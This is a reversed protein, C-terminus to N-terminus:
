SLHSLSKVMRPKAPGQGQDKADEQAGGQRKERLDSHDAGVGTMLAFSLASGFFPGTWSIFTLRSDCAVPWLPVTPKPMEDKPVCRCCTTWFMVHDDLMHELFALTAAWSRYIASTLYLSVRLHSVACIHSMLIDPPYFNCSISHKEMTTGCARLTLEWFRSKRLIPTWIQVVSHCSLSKSALNTLVHHARAVKELQAGCFKRGM